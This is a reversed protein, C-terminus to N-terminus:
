KDGGNIKAMIIPMMMDMAQTFKQALPPISKLTERHEKESAERARYLYIIAAFQLACIIGAAGWFEGLKFAVSDM